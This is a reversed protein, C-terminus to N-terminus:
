RVEDLEHAVYGSFALFLLESQLPYVQGFCALVTDHLTRNSSEVADPWMLIM